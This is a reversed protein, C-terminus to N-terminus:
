NLCKKATCQGKLKIYNWKDIRERLQQAMHTRNLFDSGIGILGLTNEPREQVLKLTEPRIKLDKIWKSNISKCPPDLKLKRCTSM